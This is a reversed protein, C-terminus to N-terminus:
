APAPAADAALVASARTSLLTRVEALTELPLAMGIWILSKDHVPVTGLMQVSPVVGSALAFAVVSMAEVAATEHSSLPPVM